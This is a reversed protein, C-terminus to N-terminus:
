RKAIFRKTVMSASRESVKGSAKIGLTALTVKPQRAIKRDLGDEFSKLVSAKYVFIKGNQLGYLSGKAKRKQKLLLKGAMVGAKAARDLPTRERSGTKAKGIERAV